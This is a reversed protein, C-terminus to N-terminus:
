GAAIREHLTEMRYDKRPGTVRWILRWRDPGEFLYEGRYVDPACDHHVEARGGRLRLLHFFRGDGHRFEVVDPPQLRWLYVRTGEAEAGGLRLIGSEAWRLRDPAGGEQAPDHSLQAEGEFRGTQGGHADHIDRTLRWRGRLALAPHSVGGARGPRDPAGASGGGAGGAAARRKTADDM